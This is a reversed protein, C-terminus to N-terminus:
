RWEIVRDLLEPIREECYDNIDQQHEHSLRHADEPRGEIIAAAIQRHADFFDDHKPSLDIAALVQERFIASMASASTSLVLNGSLAYVTEHFQPTARWIGRPRVADDIETEGEGFTAFLQNRAQEPDSRRAALDALWPELAVKSEALERYTAGALRYYLASTRGLDSADVAAMVPGGGRGQKVVVLGQAELLRLAERLTTRAVGYNAMMTVESPLVDGPEVGDEIMAEVIERALVEALKLPRMRPPLPKLLTRNGRQVREGEVGTEHKM